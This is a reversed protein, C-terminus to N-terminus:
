HDLLYAGDNPHYGILDKWACGQSDLCRNLFSVKQAILGQIYNDQVCCNVFLRILWDNMKFRENRKSEVRLVNDHVCARCGSLSYASPTWRFFQLEGSFKLTM